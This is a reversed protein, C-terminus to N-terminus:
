EILDGLLSWELDLVETDPDAVIGAGSSVVHVLLESFHRSGISDVREVLVHSGTVTGSEAGDVYTRVKKERDIRHM